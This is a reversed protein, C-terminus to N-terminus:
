LSLNAPLVDQGSKQAAAGKSHEVETHHCRGRLYMKRATVDDWTKEEKVSPEVCVVIREDAPHIM